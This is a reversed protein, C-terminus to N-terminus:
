EVAQIDRLLCVDEAQFASAKRGSPYVGIGQFGGTGLLPISVLPSRRREMERLGVGTTVAKYGESQGEPSFGAGDSRKKELIEAESRHVGVGRPRSLPRSLRMCRHWALFWSTHKFHIVYLSLTYINCPPCETTPSNQGPVPDEALLLNRADKIHTSLALGHGATGDVRIGSGERLEEAPSGTTRPV